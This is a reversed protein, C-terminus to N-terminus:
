YPTLYSCSIHGLLLVVAKVRSHASRDEKMILGKEEAIFFLFEFEIIKSTVGEIVEVTDTM